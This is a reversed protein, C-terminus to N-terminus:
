EKVLIVEELFKDDDILGKLIMQEKKANRNNLKNKNVPYFSKIKLISGFNIRIAIVIM